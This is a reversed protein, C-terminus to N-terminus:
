SRLLLQKLAEGLIRSGLKGNYSEYFYQFRVDKLSYCVRGGRAVRLMRGLRTESQDVTQFMREKYSQDNPVVVGEYFEQQFDVNDKSKVSNESDM